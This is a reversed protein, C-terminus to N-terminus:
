PQAINGTFAGSTNGTATNPTRTGTVTGGATTDFGFLGNTNATNNMFDGTFNNNILFDFGDDANGIASNLRVDNIYNEARVFIGDSGNGSGLVGAINSFLTATFDGSGDADSDALLNFGRGLNGNATNEEIRGAINGNVGIELGTILNNNTTNRFVQGNFTGRGDVFIGDGSNGNAINDSILGAIDGPSELNLGDDGNNNGTNRFVQSNITAGQIHIGDIGNGNGAIGTLNDSVTSTVDGVSNNDVDAHIRIGDRTNGHATNFDIIGGINGNANLRIGEFVNNNTTNTFVRSNVNAGSIIIGRQGNGNGALGARNNSVTATADGVNDNDFNALVAIGNTTNGHSTNNDILGTINGTAEAVLGGDDTGGSNNNNNTTNGTIQSNINTGIVWVGNRTNNNSTNNTIDATVDGVGSADNDANVYVGSGSSGSATNSDVLGLVNNDARVAVGSFGNTDVVNRRVFANVDNAAHLRIGEGGNRAARNDDVNMLINSAANNTQVLLGRNGNDNTVNNTVNGRVDGTGNSVVSLGDNTNSNANNNDILVESDLAGNFLVSVGDVGNRDTTNGTIDLRGAAPVNDATIGIGNGGNDNATNNNYLGSITGSALQIGSDTNNSLTNNDVNGSFDGTGLVQLGDNTNNNLTNNVVDTGIDIGEIFAGRVFGSATNQDIIGGVNNFSNGVAIGIFGGNTTGDIVNRNIDFNTALFGDIGNRAAAAVINFGSVEDNNGLQITHGGALPANILSAAGGLGSEPLTIPGFETTDVGHALHASLLRQNDNLSISGTPSFVSGPAALIIDVFEADDELLAPAAQLNNGTDVQRVTILDGTTPDTARVSALTTSYSVVPSVNRRKVRSWMRANADNSRAVIETNPGGLYISVGGSLTTDFLGDNSVSLNASINSTLSTEVTGNVGWADPGDAAVLFYTGAGIESHIAPFKRAISVDFGDLAEAFHGSTILGINSVGASGGVQPIYVADNTVGNLQRGSLDLYGNSRFAWSDTLAELGFGLTSFSHDIPGNTDERFNFFSNAGFVVGDINRRFGLGFDASWGGSDDNLNSNGSIFLLSDQGNSLPAFAGLRHNGHSVGPSDGPYTGLEIRINSNGFFGPGQAHAASSFLTSYAFATATFLNLLKM